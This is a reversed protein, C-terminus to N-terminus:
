PVFPVSTMVVNSFSFAWHRHVASWQGSLSATIVKLGGPQQWLPNMFMGHDVHTGGWLFLLIELQRIDQGLPNGPYILHGGCFGPASPHSGPSVGLRHIIFKCMGMLSLPLGWVLSFSLSSFPISPSGLPVEPFVKGAEEQARWDESCSIPHPRLFLLELCPCPSSAIWAPNYGFYQGM